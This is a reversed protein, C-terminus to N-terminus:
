QPVSVHAKPQAADLILDSIRQAIVPYSFALMRTQGANRLATAQLEDSCATVITRAIETPDNPDFYVAADGCVDHAYPLDAAAIPCGAAMSEVLGLGFSEVLSPFVMLDSSRLAFDVEKADLIGLWKIRDLVGCALAEKVILRVWADYRPENPRELELTLMLTASPLVQTVLSMARILAFHNKSAGPHSVYLIRPKRSSNVLLEKESRVHGGGGLTRFGSPIVYIADANLKPAAEIIKQKMTKTQVVTTTSASMGSIILHRLLRLKISALVGRSVVDTIFFVNPQHFFVVQPIVPRIPACNAFSFLIDAHMQRVLRHVVCNLWYVRGINGTGVRTFHFQVSETVVPDDFERLDRTLLCVHWRWTPRVAPLWHLLETLVAAGGHGRIGVADIVVVLKREFAADDSASRTKIGTGDVAVVTGVPCDRFGTTTSQETM